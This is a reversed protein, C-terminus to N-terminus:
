QSGLRSMPPKRMMSTLRFDTNTVEGARITFATRKEAFGARSISVQYSGPPLANLSYSGDRGTVVGPRGLVAVVAGAIPAGSVADVVRGRLQGLRTQTTARQKEPVVRLSRNSDALRKLAFEERSAAGARITISQQDESFGSSTVKVLHNGPSLDALTYNGAQDTKVSRGATSVIAGPIPRRNLADVVQGRLAGGRMPLPRTPTEAKRVPDRAPSPRNARAEILKAMYPSAKRKLQFNESETKGLHSTIKRNSNEYGLKSVLVTYSGPRLDKVEYNGARSTLVAAASSSQLFLVKAGSVPKGETDLVRGRLNSGTGRVIARQRDRAPSRPVATLQSQAETAANPTVSVRTSIPRLGSKQVTVYHQGAPVNLFTYRGQSDTRVVALAGAKTHAYVPPSSQGKAGAQGQLSVLARALPRGAQDKATGKLTGTAGGKPNRKLVTTSPIIRLASAAPAMNPKIEFDAVAPRGRLLDIQGVALQKGNKKLVLNSLKGAPLAKLTYSGDPGTITTADSDQETVEVGALPQGSQLVVGSVDETPQESVELPSGEPAADGVNPDEKAGRFAARMEQIKQLIGLVEGARQDIIGLLSKKEGTPAAAEESNAAVSAAQENLTTLAAQMENKAAAIEQDSGTPDAGGEIRSAKSALATKLKQLASSVPKLRETDGAGSAVVEEAQAILQQLEEDSEAAVVDKPDDQQSADGSEPGPEPAPDREPSVIAEHVLEALQGIANSLAQDKEASTGEVRVTKVSLTEVSIIDAYLQIAASTEGNSNGDSAVILGGRVVFKVGHQKGLAGLQEVTMAKISTADTAADFRRALVDKYAVNLKQALKRAIGREVEARVRAGSEDQFEFVAVSITQDQGSAAGGFVLLLYFFAFGVFVSKSVAKASVCVSDTLTVRSAALSQHRKKM